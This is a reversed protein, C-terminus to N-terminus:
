LSSDPPLPVESWIEPGPSGWNYGMVDPLRWAPLTLALKVKFNCHNQLVTQLLPFPVMYVLFPCIFDGIQALDHVRVTVKVLHRSKM